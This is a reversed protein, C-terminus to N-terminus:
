KELCMTTTKVYVCGTKTKERRAWDTWRRHQKPSANLNM